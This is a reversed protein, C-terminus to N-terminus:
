KQWTPLHAIPTCCLRYRTIVQRLQLLLLEPQQTLLLLQTTSPHHPQYTPLTKRMLRLLATAGSQGNTPGKLWQQQVGSLVLMPFLRARLTLLVTSCLHFSARYGMLPPLKHPLTSRPPQLQLQLQTSPRPPKSAKMAAAAAKLAVGLNVKVEVEAQSM